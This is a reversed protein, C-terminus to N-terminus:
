TPVGLDTGRTVRRSATPAPSEAVAPEFDEAILESEPESPELTVEEQAAAATLAPPPPSPAAAGSEIPGATAVAPQAHAVVAPSSRLAFWAVVGLNVILLAGVAIAWAPFRAKPPAVKVEFLAPGSQRQREGESKKLADLIFSM